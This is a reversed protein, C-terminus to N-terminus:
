IPTRMEAAHKVGRVIQAEDDEIMRAQVNKCQKYIECVSTQLDLIESCMGQGATKAFM